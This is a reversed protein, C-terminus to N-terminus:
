VDYRGGNGTGEKLDRECFDEDKVSQLNSMKVFRRLQGNREAARTTESRLMGSRHACGASRPFAVPCHVARVDILLFLLLSKYLTVIALSVYRVGVAQCDRDWSVSSNKSDCRSKTVEGRRRSRLSHRIQRRSCIM